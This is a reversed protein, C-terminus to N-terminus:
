LWDLYDGRFDLLERKQEYLSEQWYCKALKELIAATHPYSIHLKSADERYKISTEKEEMGGTVTHVGRQPQKGSIFGEILKECHTHEFYDRVMEHPFIGDDGIPAYSLVRGFCYAFSGSYTIFRQAAVSQYRGKKVIMCCNWPFIPDFPVVALNSCKHVSLFPKPLITIGSGHESLNILISSNGSIFNIKPTFGAEQCRRFVAHKIAHGETYFNFKENRLDSVKVREQQSLPNSYPIIAVIEKSFLPYADLLGSNCISDNEMCFGVDCQCAEVMAGIDNSGRESFRLNINPYDACFPTIQSILYLGALM